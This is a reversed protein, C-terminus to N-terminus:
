NGWTQSKPYASRIVKKVELSSNCEECTPMKDYDKLPIDMIFERPKGNNKDLCKDSNCEYEYRM